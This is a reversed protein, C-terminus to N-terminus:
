LGLGTAGKVKMWWLDVAGAVVVSVGECVGGSVSVCVGAV